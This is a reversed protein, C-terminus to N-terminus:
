IGDRTGKEPVATKRNDARRVASRYLMFLGFSLLVSGIIDTMWHVGALLRGTVMLASFVASFVAAGNRALPSKFRRDAQFALTPMVSLVLLTTSSPYSAELVGDILVPRYNVPVMEFFLYAAIVLLYYGGLLIIDPDVRRLSKRGFLQVAGLIGFGACVAVPVLGLWDTVTYLAMHVGTTRHFWTNLAAFGVGTGNPGVPRVDALRILATWIGFATLLGLGTRLDRKERNKM